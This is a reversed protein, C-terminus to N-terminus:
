VNVRELVKCESGRAWAVGRSCVLELNHISYVIIRGCKRERMLQIIIIKIM